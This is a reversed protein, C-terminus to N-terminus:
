EPPIEMAEAIHADIKEALWRIAKPSMEGVDGELMGSEVIKSRCAARVISGLLEPVSLNIENDGDLDRKAKFFAEVHGQRLEVVQVSIAFDEHKFEM